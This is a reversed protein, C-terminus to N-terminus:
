LGLTYKGSLLKIKKAKNAQSSSCTVVEKINERSNEDAQHTVFLARIWTQRFTDELTTCGLGKWKRGV